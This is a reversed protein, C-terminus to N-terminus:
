SSSKEFFPSLLGLSLAGIMLGLDRLAIDYFRQLTLLNIIIALLWLAVIYSFWRPKLWIGIGACIEIIGVTRMTLEPNGFINFPSSLYQTWLTLLDFFKDLGALLPLLTFGIRLLQYASRASTQLSSSKTM